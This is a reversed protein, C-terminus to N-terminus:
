QYVGLDIVVLSSTKTLRILDKKSSDDDECALPVLKM